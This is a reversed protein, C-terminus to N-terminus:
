RVVPEVVSLTLTGFRASSCVVPMVRMVCRCRLVGPTRAATLAVRGLVPRVDLALEEGGAALDAVDDGVDARAHLGGDDLGSAAISCVIARREEVSAGLVGSGEGRPGTRVRRLDEAATVKAASRRERAPAM